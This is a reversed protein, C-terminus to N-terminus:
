SFVYVLLMTEDQM